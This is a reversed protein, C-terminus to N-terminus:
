FQVRVGLQLQRQSYAFNDNNVATISQFPTSTYPVLQNQYTSTGPLKVVSPTYASAGVSTVNQHNALNFAEGFFELRYREQFVLRKSLRLDLVNIRPQQYLNRNPGPVRQAGGSGNFSGSNTLTLPTGGATTLAASGNIGVSYPLGSQAQFDPAIEYDNLLYGLPGKVHYPLDGVAYLVM